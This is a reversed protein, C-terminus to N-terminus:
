RNSRGVDGFKACSDSFLAKSGTARKVPRPVLSHSFRHLQHLSILVRVDSVLMMWWLLHRPTSAESHPGAIEAANSM